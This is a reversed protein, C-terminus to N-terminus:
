RLYNEEIALACARSIIEEIVSSKADAYNQTYKWERLALTRKTQAYLERDRESTRLWNRFMLMRDIEPCSASFVHLNIDNAPGKFMRHEHWGPERIHLNYGVEQLAPAYQTEDTSDVVALVIDIIPKAILGPVSTSGVHEIRLAQKGLVRAIKEAEEKFTRPWEPDYDVLRIPGSLAKLEIMTNTRLYDESLPRQRDFREEEM